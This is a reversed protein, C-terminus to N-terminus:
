CLTNQCNRGKYKTYEARLTLKKANLDDIQATIKELEEDLNHLDSIVSQLEKLYKEKKSHAEAEQILQSLSSMFLGVEEPNNLMKEYIEKLSPDSNIIEQMEPTSVIKLLDNAIKKYDIPIDAM